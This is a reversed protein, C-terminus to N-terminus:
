NLRALLESEAAKLNEFKASLLVYQQQAKIMDADMLHQELIEAVARFDAFGFFCFSGHLKHAVEWAKSCQRDRLYQELSVFQSPVEEFLKQLYKRGMERNNELRNLVASVYYDGNVSERPKCWQGIVRELDALVIPKILCDNFGDEIFLHPQRRQVHATIAIIPTLRNASAMRAKQVLELGSIGPMNVDLFILSYVTERLAEWAQTGDSTSTVQNTWTNLQEALLWRNMENDDAILISLETETMNVVWLQIRKSVGHM